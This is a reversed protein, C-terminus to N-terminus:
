DCHKALDFSFGVAVDKWTKGEHPAYCNLTLMKLPEQANFDFLDLVGKARFKGDKVTYRLPIDIARNNMGINVVLRGSAEDGEVSIIEADIVAGQMMNFFFQVLKADRFPDNTDVNNVELQVRSKTLLRKLDEAEKNGHYVTALFGGDVGIKKPTKYATWEVKVPTTMELRCEAQLIGATALLIMFLRNM